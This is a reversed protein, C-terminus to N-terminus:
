CNRLFCFTFIHFTHVPIEVLQTDQVRALYIMSNKTFNATLQFNAAFYLKKSCIKLLLPIKMFSVLLRIIKRLLKHVLHEILCM